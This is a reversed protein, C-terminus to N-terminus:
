NIQGKMKLTGSKDVKVDLLEGAEIARLVLERESAIIELYQHYGPPVVGDNEYVVHFSRAYVCHDHMERIAVLAEDDGKDLHTSELMIARARILDVMVSVDDSFIKGGDQKSKSWQGGNMCAHILVEVPSGACFFRMGETMAQYFVMLRDVGVMTDKGFREGFETAAIKYYEMSAEFRPKACSPDVLGMDKLAACTKEFLEIEEDMHRLLTEWTIDPMLDAHRDPPADAIERVRKHEETSLDRVDQGTKEKMAEAVEASAQLLDDIFSM